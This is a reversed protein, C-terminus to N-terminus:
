DTIVAVAAATRGTHTISVTLRRSGLRRAAKGTLKPEVAQGPRRPLDIEQWTAGGGLAKIVAEKAAFRAALHVLPRALGACSRRERETFLKELFRRGNRAAVREFRDIEVLDIGVSPPRTM